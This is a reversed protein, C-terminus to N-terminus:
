VYTSVDVNDDGPPDTTEAVTNSSNESQDDEPANPTSIDNPM